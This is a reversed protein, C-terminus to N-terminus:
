LRVQEALGQRPDADKTAKEFDAVAKKAARSLTEPVAVQVNLVLDGTGSADALGYGPLRLQTGSQTGAPVKVSVTRGDPLPVEVQTGLTAEPFTVPLAFCLDKGELRLYPHSQVKVTVVLNGAEAGGTGPRGKGRLRIKQGDRVGAPIRVTLAEGNVKLRVTAGNYAQKFTLTTSASLDAGKQPRLSFGRRGESAGAGGSGPGSGGAAGRGRPGTGAPNQGAGFGGFLGSFPNGYSTGFDEAGPGGAGGAGGPGGAGGANGAAAQQAFANLIDSLPNDGGATSFRMQAGDAFMASFADEFDSASGSRPGGARFRPGGSAMARLADYQKRQKPDSLVQYAEGIAKFKEEAAKDGPNQDPHWQRALKRYAKKLDQESVDKSVGLVKYFDKDLWDNSSM